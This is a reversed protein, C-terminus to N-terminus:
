DSSWGLLRAGNQWLVARLWDHGLGLRCLADLQHAYPYPINPFDSGLVVKHRLDRLRERYGPPFPAFQNTFDTAAMTTDLYVRPHQEALDAFEHYEPMGLHAIVLTLRPHAALLRRIGAPGTFPGPRPASGAHIVVVSGAAEIARWADTLLPDDAAFGGVQLHLKFLSAGEALAREVYAGADPEPYMTACHVADPVRRAFATSWDNLWAAMGPKHAYSLAPIARVGFRRLRELRESEPLRYQIPWSYGYAEDGRDFYAWVKNLMPEPLFHIHIDLLGPLGLDALFRAIDDDTAPGRASM